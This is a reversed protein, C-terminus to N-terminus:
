ASINDADIFFVWRRNKTFTFEAIFKRINRYKIRQYILCFSPAKVVLIIYQKGFAPKGLPKLCGRLFCLGNFKDAQFIHVKNSKSSNGVRFDIKPNKDRLSVFTRLSRLAKTRHRKKLRWFYRIIWLNKPILSSILFDFWRNSSQSYSNRIFKM